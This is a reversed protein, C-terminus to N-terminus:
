GQCSAFNQMGCTLIHTQECIRFPVYGCLKDFNETCALQTRQVPSRQHIVIVCYTIYKENQLCKCRGALETHSLSHVQGGYASYLTSVSGATPKCMHTKM